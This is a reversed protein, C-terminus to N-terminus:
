SIIGSKVPLNLSYISFFGGSNKTLISLFAGIRKHSNRLDSKQIPTYKKLIAANEGRCRPFAHFLSKKKPTTYYFSLLVCGPLGRCLKYCPPLSHSPTKKHRSQRGEPQDARGPAYKAPQQRLVASNHQARLPRIDMGRGSSIKPEPTQTQDPARQDHRFPDQCRRFPCPQFGMTYFHTRPLLQEPPQSCPLFLKVSCSISIRWPAM